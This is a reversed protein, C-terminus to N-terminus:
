VEKGLVVIDSIKINEGADKNGDLKKSVTFSIATVTIEDFSAHCSGGPRMFYEESNWYDPHFALDQIYVTKLLDGKWGAPQGALTFEIKDVQAFAYLFDFSNYVMVSKVAVPRNWALTITTEGYAEFEFASSITHAAYLGDNLYRATQMNGNTASVTASEALNKYGTVAAPKPQLSWSAGNSYLIDFTGSLTSLGYDAAKAGYTNGNIFKVRDVAIGRPNSSGTARDMMSHYVVFIEDGTQVFAHHGPGSMHDMYGEIYLSPNGHEPALKIFPGMPDASVAMAVCYLARQTYGGHAYTLYYIGNHKIMFPAENVSTGQELPFTKDAEADAVSQYSPYTLFTLSGYDPTVMDVMKVVALRTRYDYSNDKARQPNCRFYLYWQGDDDRFPSPDICWLGEYSRGTADTKTQTYNWSGFKSEDSSIHDRRFSLNCDSKTYRTGYADEEALRFGGAPNDSVAVFMETKTNGGDTTASSYLYYKETAADYVVEPAWINWNCWQTGDFDLAHGVSQWSNLDRSRMVMINYYLSTTYLYFWGGWEENEEESVWICGPDAAHNLQLDNRYFLDTDYTGDANIGDNHPLAATATEKGSCATCCCTLSLAAALTFAIISKKM